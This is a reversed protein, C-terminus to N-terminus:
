ELPLLLVDQFSCPPELVRVGVEALRPRPGRVGRGGLWVREVDCRPLVEALDAEHRELWESRSVSLCLLGPRLTACVREVDEVPLSPGLYSVRFGRRTLAYAVLIAGLAHEEGPLCACVAFRRRDSTAQNSAELLSLLRGAIKASALHESAVSAKGQAWLAGIRVLAPEVVRAIGAEVSVAAFGEDLAREVGPGDLDLAAQVLRDRWRELPGGEAHAPQAQTLTPREAEAALLADRGETAIEGISRGQASLRQIARLVRLDDESYLRHGGETRGPRLLGHRREWARLLAPSLGTAQTITKMKYGRGDSAQASAEGDM